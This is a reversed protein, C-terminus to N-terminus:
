MGVGVGFTAADLKVERARDPDAPISVGVRAGAVKEGVAEGTGVLLGAEAVAGVAVGNSGATGCAREGEYEAM